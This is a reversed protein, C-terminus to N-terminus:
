KNWEVKPSRYYNIGMAEFRAGHKALRTKYEDWSRLPAPTWGIEAYGPLRPFVLYEIEDMNTVTESWLPAEIGLISSKSVGPIFTAPDWAYASDVEIYGAWHLGLTTTSDYKMDLYAKRAPSLVLQSGQGIANVANKINAWHQAVTGSKLSAAAIDDWGMTQKGHSTVIDQVRNIFPIYDEMTTVHSEDGGIHIYPGPTLAALEGFVDSIFKYTIEKSICFTSFGVNTGTYLGTAKGNCNLEAYSSLAANTHGPMDIEPIITIYRTAAYHVIDSYQEQTYYGGEGGGVQTSGGYTALNPWSKIEIRWGQDDALHLHLKNMKYRAMQDILTKVDDPRFFHRSVDLMIGRYGYDPLDRIIGTPIIWPGAQTTSMGVVPPLLQLLTQVGYFIGAPKGATVKVMKESINLEYGEDKLDTLTSDLILYINGKGLIKSTQRVESFGLGSSKSLRDALYAGIFLVDYSDSKHFIVSQDTLEFSGGTAIVSVPRPIISAKALDTPTEQAKTCSLLFSVLLLPIVRLALRYNIPQNM